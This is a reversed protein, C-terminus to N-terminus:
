HMVKQRPIFYHPWSNLGRLVVGEINLIQPAYVCAFFFWNLRYSVKKAYASRYSHFFTRKKKKQNLKSVPTYGNPDDTVECASMVNIFIFFLIILVKWNFLTFKKICSNKEMWMSDRARPAFLRRWEVINSRYSLGMRDNTTIRETRPNVQGLNEKIMHFWKGM